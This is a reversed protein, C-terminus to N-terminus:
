IFSKRQKYEPNEKENGMEEKKGMKGHKGTEMNGKMNGDVKKRLNGKGKGNWNKYNEKEIKVKGLKWM